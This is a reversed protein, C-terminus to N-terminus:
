QDAEQRRDPTSRETQRRERERQEIRYFLCAPCECYTAWAYARTHPTPTTDTV